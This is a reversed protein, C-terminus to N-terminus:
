GIAGGNTVTGDLRYELSPRAHEACFYHPEGRPEWAVYGNVAPMETLDCVAVASEDGCCECKGM